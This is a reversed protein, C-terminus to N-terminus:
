YLDWRKKQWPIAPIDISAMMEELWITAKNLDFDAEIALSNVNSAAKFIEEKKDIISRYKKKKSDDLEPISAFLRDYLQDIV